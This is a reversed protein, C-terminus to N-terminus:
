YVSLNRMAVACTAVNVGAVATPAHKAEHALLLGAGLKVAVFAPWGFARLIGSMVPNVEVAGSHLAVATTTVDAAQCGVSAQPSSLAACSGLAFCALMALALLLWFRPWLTM